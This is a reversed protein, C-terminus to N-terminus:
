EYYVGSDMLANITEIENFSAKSDAFEFGDTQVFGTFAGPTSVGMFPKGMIPNFNVQTDTLVKQTVFCHIVTDLGQVAGGGLGGSGQGTGGLAGITSSATSLLGAGIAGTAIASTGGSAIAAGIAVATGVGSVVAQTAKNMDLGTSGYPTNMGCNGSATAVKKGTQYGRIEVAIDGSTVNISYLIRLQTDNMLDTAPLNQMGILPLYVEVNTYAAVRKWDTSQWPIDIINESRYIPSTIEYGEIDLNSGNKCPYGGLMLPQAVGSSVQSADVLFPLAIASKLNDAASGGHLAQKGWEIPSTVVQNLWDDIGDLLEPVDTTYKLLYMGFSGKGTIGLIVSQISDALTINALAQYNHGRLVNAMTPIRSDVINKTSGTAYLINCSTTGIPTKFSALPDVKGSINYMGDIFGVDTRFYYRDWDPVYFYNYAAPNFTQCEFTPSSMSCGSKLNFDKEVYSGTPQLTSRKRKAFSYFRVKM